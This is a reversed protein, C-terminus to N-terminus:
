SHKGMLDVPDMSQQDEARRLSSELKEGEENGFLAM